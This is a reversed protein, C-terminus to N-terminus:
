EFFWKAIWGCVNWKVEVNFPKVYKGSGNWARFKLERNM